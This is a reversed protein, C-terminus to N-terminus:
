VLVEDFYAALARVRRPGFSGERSSELAITRAGCVIIRPANLGQLVLPGVVKRRAIAADIPIDSYPTGSLLGRVADVQALVPNVLDARRRKSRRTGAMPKDISSKYRRSDVVTVGRPGVILHSIETRSGPLRRHHLM